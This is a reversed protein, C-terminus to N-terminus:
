LWQKHKFYLVMFLATALMFLMVIPYGLHAHLEPMFDFNMGYVGVIFTLPLFITGIVTLFKMIENMRNSLNSMYLEALGNVMERLSEVIDMVQVAHDYTDRFFMKMDPRVLAYDDRELHALLERTPWVVRRMYILERRLYNIQQQTEPEPNSMVADELKEAIDSMTELAVFYHDVITDLLAYMLYDSGSRRIRGQATRIRNRVADFVDGPDELFSLVYTPGVVLSVQESRLERRDDDFYLMRAVVYLHEDYQEIKPRQGTNVIDELVLPQISFYSGLKQVIDIDHVGEVNIWSTPLTDRFRFTEEITSPASESLTEADYNM